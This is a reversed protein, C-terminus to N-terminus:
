DLAPVAATCPALHRMGGPNTPDHLLTARDPRRETTVVRFLARAGRGGRDNKAHLRHLAARRALDRTAPPPRGREDQEGVRQAAFALPDVSSSSGGPAWRPRAAEREEVGVGHRVRRAPIVGGIRVDAPGSEAAEGPIEAGLRHIRQALSSPAIEPGLKAPEGGLRLASRALMRRYTICHVSVPERTSAGASWRAAPDM